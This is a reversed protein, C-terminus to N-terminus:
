RNQLRPSRSPHLIEYVTIKKGNIIHCFYHMNDKRKNYKLGNDYIKEIKWSCPGCLEDFIDKCTFIILEDKEINGIITELKQTACNLAETYEYTIGKEGFDSHVNCYVVDKLTKDTMGLQKFMESFRNEFKSAIMKDVKIKKCNTKESENYYKEKNLIIQQFWFDRVKKGETNPERLYFIIGNFEEKNGVYGEYEGFGLNRCMM